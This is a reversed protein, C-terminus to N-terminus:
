RGMSGAVSGVWVLRCDRSIALWVKSLSQWEGRRWTSIVRSVPLQTGKCVVCGRQCAREGGGGACREGGGAPEGRRSVLVVVLLTTAIAAYLAVSALVISRAAVAGASGRCWSARPLRFRAAAWLIARRSRLRTHMNRLAVWCATGAARGRAGTM